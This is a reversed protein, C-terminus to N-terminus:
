EHTEGDRTVTFTESEYEAREVRIPNLRYDVSFVFVCTDGDIIKDPLIASDSVITFDGVPLDRETSTMTILNGSDCAIFRSAGVVDTPQPKFVSLEMVIPEGVAITNGANLVPIPQDITPLNAPRLTWWTVVAIGAVAVTVLVWSAVLLAKFTTTSKMM